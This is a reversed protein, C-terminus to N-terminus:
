AARSPISRASLVARMRSTFYWTSSGAESLTPPDQVVELPGRDQALHRREGGIVPDIPLAHLGPEHRVEQDEVPLHGPREGVAVLDQHAVEVEDGFGVPAPPGLWLTALL